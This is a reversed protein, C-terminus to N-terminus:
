SPYGFVTDKSLSPFGIPSLITLKFNFYVECDNKLHTKYKEVDKINNKYDNERAIPVITSELVGSFSLKTSDIHNLSDIAENVIKFPKDSINFEETAIYFLNDFEYKNTLLTDCASGINLAEKVNEYEEKNSTSKNYGDIGHMIYAKLVSNNM